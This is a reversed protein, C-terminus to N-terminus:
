GNRAEKEWASGDERWLWTEKDGYQHIRIKDIKTATTPQRDLCHAFANGGELRGKAEVLFHDAEVWREPTINGDPDTHAPAKAYAWIEIQAMANHRKNTLFRPGHPGKM